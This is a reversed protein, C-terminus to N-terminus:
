SGLLNTESRSINILEEIVFPPEFYDGFCDNLFDELDGLNKIQIDKIRYSTYAIREYRYFDSLEVVNLKKLSEYLSDYIVTLAPARPTFLQAYGLAQVYATAALRLQEQAKEHTHILRQREEKSLDEDQKLENILLNFQNFAIRGRLGYAKSLQHFLYAPTKESVPPSTEVLLKAEAPIQAEAEVLVAEATQWEGAFFYAWALNIQADLLLRPNNIRSAGRIAENLYRLADNRRREWLSILKEKDTTELWDRYLCGLEIHVEVARISEGKAATNTVFIERARKIAESAQTFIAEPNESVFRKTKVLRRLAEGLQVYALGAMRADGIEQVIALSTASAEMAELPHHLDNYILGLTNYSMALPLLHGERFRLNLADQCIRVARNRGMEVLTRSLNNRTEARQAVLPFARMYQLAKTYDQISRRFQGLTVYGYGVISYAISLIFILRHRALHGRFGYESNDPFVMTETDAEALQELNSIVGELRTIADAINYGKLIHAYERWCTREGRAFTHSWSSQEFPDQLALVTKEIDDAFQIARDYEGRMVFRLIWEAADNQQAARQLVKLADEDRKNRAQSLDMFPTIYPDNLTRWMTDRIMAAGQEDETKHYSDTFSFYVDNFAAYPALLMEYFLFELDLHRLDRVLQSFTKTEDESQFPLSTKLIEQPREIVIQQIRQRIWDTRHEQKQQRQPRLWELLREYLYQRAEKEGQKRGETRLMQDAYIRYVEDQLGIRGDPKLKVISLLRMAQLEEDIQKIREADEEWVQQDQSDLYFHLQTANLGRTTRVLAQLIQSRLTPRQFLLDIFEGEIEQRAQKLKEEDAAFQRVESLARLLPEPITDGQIFIDSYLSLRIPQGGTYLHLVELQEPNGLLFQVGERLSVALKDQRHKWTDLLLAFYEHTEKLSFPRAPLEILDCAHGNATQRQVVKQLEVFYPGGERENDRGAIVLTTNHFKGQEIRELLWRQTSFLIDKPDLLSHEVLWASSHNALQEVTDLLIVLRHTAAAHHYEQWFIDEAKQSAQAVLTFAGGKQATWRRRDQAIEHETFDVQGDWSDSQGLKALFSDRTHLRIDTVDILDCVYATEREKELWNHEPNNFPGYFNVMRQHGLRRQVEELLRTKGLGGSGRLFVIRCEDGPRYIADHVTNMEDVRGVLDCPRTTVGLLQELSM